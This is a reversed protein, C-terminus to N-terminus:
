SGADGDALDHGIGTSLKSKKRAARTLPVEYVSIGDHIKVCSHRMM